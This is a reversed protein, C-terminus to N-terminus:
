DTASGAYLFSRCCVGNFFSAKACLRANSICLETHMHVCDCTYKHLSQKMDAQCFQSLWNHLLFLGYPVAGVVGHKTSAASGLGAILLSPLTHSVLPLKSSSHRCQLPEDGWVGGHISECAAYLSFTSRHLPNLFWRQTFNKTKPLVPVILCAVTACSLRRESALYLLDRYSGLWTETVTHM